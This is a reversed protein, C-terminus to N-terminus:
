LKRIKEGYQLSLAQRWQAKLAVGIADSLKSNRQKKKLLNFL